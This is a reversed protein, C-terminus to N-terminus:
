VSVPNFGYYDKAAFIATPRDAQFNYINKLWTKHFPYPHTQNPPSMMHTTVSGAAQQHCCRCPRFRILILKTQHSMM